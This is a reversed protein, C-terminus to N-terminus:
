GVTLENTLSLTAKQRKNTLYIKFM